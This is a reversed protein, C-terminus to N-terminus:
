RNGVSFVKIQTVGLYGYEGDVRGIGYPPDTVVADFRGLTPMVQLCDGLILRQNGIREERIIM